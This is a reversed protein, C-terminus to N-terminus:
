GVPVDRRRLGALGVAGLAAAVVALLILPLAEVTGGPLRPLHTYPSIDLLAQPFDFIAGLQGFLFCFAFAVWSAAVARPMLGFLAVTVAGLVWVAPLQVAASALVRPIEGAVDDGSAGYTIGGLLGYALLASTPGLLTFVLHSAAWRLRPAATALVPEARGTVEESQLRLVTQIAYGAAILGLISTLSALFADSLASGGGM